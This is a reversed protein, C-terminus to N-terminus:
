KQDWSLLDGGSKSGLSPGPELGLGPHSPTLALDIDQLGLPVMDGGGMLARCSWSRGVASPGPRATGQGPPHPCPHAPVECYM